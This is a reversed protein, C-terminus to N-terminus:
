DSVHEGGSTGLRRVGLWWHRAEALCGSTRLDPSVGDSANELRLVNFQRGILLACDGLRRDDVRRDLEADSHEPRQGVPM